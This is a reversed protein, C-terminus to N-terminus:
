LLYISSCNSSNNMRTFNSMAKETLDEMRQLEQQLPGFNAQQNLQGMYIAFPQAAVLLFIVILFVFLNFNRKVGLYQLPKEDSLYAYLLAPVIFTLIASLCQSWRFQRLSEASIEGPSTLAEAVKGFFGQAVTMYIIFMAAALGIFVVFQLGPSQYKLYNRM